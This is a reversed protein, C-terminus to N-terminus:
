APLLKKYQKLQYALNMKDRKQYLSQQALLLNKDLSLSKLLKGFNTLEYLLAYNQFDEFNAFAQEMLLVKQHKFALNYAGSIKHNLYEQHASVQSPHLLPLVCDSAQLYASMLDESLYTDFYMFYGELAYQRIQALLHAGDQTHINGLLLFRINKDSLSEGEEILVKLLFDYDRRSYILAGPIAVWLSDQPKNIGTVALSKDEAIPYWPVINLGKLLKSSGELFLSNLVWYKKVKLSILKQSKSQSLNQFFHCVGVIKFSAGLFYTWLSLFRLYNSHATNDILLKVKNARMFRLLRFCVRWIAEKESFFYNEQYCAPIQAKISENFFGIVEYDSAQLMQYHSYLLETHSTGFEAVVVKKKAESM